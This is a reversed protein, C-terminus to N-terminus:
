AETNDGAIAAALEAIAADTEDQRAKLEEMTIKDQAQKKNMEEEYAVWLEGIEQATKEETIGMNSKLIDPDQMEVVKGIENLILIVEEVNTWNPTVKEAPVGNIPSVKDWIQVQKAM